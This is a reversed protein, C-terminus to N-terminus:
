ARGMLKMMLAGGHADDRKGKVMGEAGFQRDGGM